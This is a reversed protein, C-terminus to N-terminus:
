HKARAIAENVLAVNEKDLLVFQDNEEDEAGVFLGVESTRYETVVLLGASNDNAQVTVRDIVLDLTNKKARAFARAVADELRPRRARKAPGDQGMALSALLVGAACCAAGYRTV